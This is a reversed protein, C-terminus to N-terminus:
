RDSLGEGEKNTDDDAIRAEQRIAQADEDTALLLEHLGEKYHELLWAMREATAIDADKPDRGTFLGQAALELLVSRPNTM